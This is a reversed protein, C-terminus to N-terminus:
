DNQDNQDAWAKQDNWDTWDNQDNRDTWSNQDNRDTWDNQDNQDTWDKQDNWDTWYNQDLIELLSQLRPPQPPLRTRRVSCLLTPRSNSENRRLLRRPRPSERGPRDELGEESM